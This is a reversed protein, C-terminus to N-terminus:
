QNHTGYVEARGLLLGDSLESALVALRLELTLVALLLGLVRTALLLKRGAKNVALEIGAKSAYKHGLKIFVVWRGSKHFNCQKALGLYVAVRPNIFM